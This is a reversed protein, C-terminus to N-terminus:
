QTYDHQLVAFLSECSAFEKMQTQFPCWAYVGTGHSLLLSSVRAPCECADCGGCLLQASDFCDAMGARSFCAKLLALELGHEALPSSAHAFSKGGGDHDTSKYRQSTGVELGAFLHM